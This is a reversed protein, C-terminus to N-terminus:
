IFQFLIKIKKTRSSLTRAVVILPKRAKKQGISVLRELCLFRHNMILEKTPSTYYNLIAKPSSPSIIYKRLLPFMKFSFHLPTTRSFISSHNICNIAKLLFSFLGGMKIYIYIYIYLSLSLYISLYISPSIYLRLSKSLSLFFPPSLPRTQTRTYFDSLSLSLSLYLSLSLSLSFSLSLSLSVSVSLSYSSSSSSFFCSKSNVNCVVISSNTYYFFNFNGGTYICPENFLNGSKKRIPVKISLACM